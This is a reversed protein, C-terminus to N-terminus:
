RLYNLFLMIDPLGEAFRRLFQSISTSFCLLQSTLFLILDITRMKEIEKRRFKQNLPVKRCLHEDWLFILTIKKRRRKKGGTKGNSTM